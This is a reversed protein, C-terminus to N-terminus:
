SKDFSISDSTGPKRYDCLWCLFKLRVLIILSLIEKFRPKTETDLYIIDQFNMEIFSESSNWYIFYM